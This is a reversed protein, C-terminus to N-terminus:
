ALELRATICHSSSAAATACSYVEGSNMRVHVCIGDVLDVLILTSMLQTYPMDFSMYAQCKVIHVALLISV